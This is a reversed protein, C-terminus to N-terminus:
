FQKLKTQQFSTVPLVNNNPELHEKVQHTKFISRLKEQLHKPLREFAMPSPPNKLVPSVEMTVAKRRGRGANPQPDNPDKFLNRQLVKIIM